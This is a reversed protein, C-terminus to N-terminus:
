RKLIEEIYELARPDKTQGLWFLAKERVEPIRSTRAVRILETVARERPLQSLAFVAKEKVEADPDDAVVSRLAEFRDPADAGDRHEDAGSDEREDERAEDLRRPRHLYRSRGPVEGREEKEGRRRRM